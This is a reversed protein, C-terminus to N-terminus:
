APQPKAGTEPELRTRRNKAAGAQRGVSYWKHSNRGSYVQGEDLLIVTGGTGSFGRNQPLANGNANSAARKRQQNAVQAAVHQRNRARAAANKVHRVTRPRDIEEQLV